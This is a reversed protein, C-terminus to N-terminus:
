HLSSSQDLCKIGYNYSQKAAHLTIWSLKPNQNGRRSILWQKIVIGEGITGICLEGHFGCEPSDRPPSTRGGPWKISIGSRRVFIQEGRKTKNDYKIQFDGVPIMESKEPSFLFAQNIFKSLHIRPDSVPTPLPTRPHQDRIGARKERSNRM